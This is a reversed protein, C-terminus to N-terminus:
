WGRDQITSSPTAGTSRLLIGRLFCFHVVFFEDLVFYGRWGVDASFVAQGLGRPPVGETFSHEDRQAREKCNEHNHEADHEDRGLHGQNLM